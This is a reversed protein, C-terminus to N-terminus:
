RFRLSPKPALIGPCYPLSKSVKNLNTATTPIPYQSQFLTRFFRGFIKIIEMERMKEPATPLM